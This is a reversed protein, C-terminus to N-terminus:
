DELSFVHLSVKIDDTPTTPSLNQLIYYMENDGMIAADNGRISILNTGITDLNAGILKPVFYTTESGSLLADIVLGTTGLSETAFSRSIETANSFATSKTYLRLRARKGSGSLSASVLLYTRPVTASALTGSVFSGTTVTAQIDPVTVRNIINISSDELLFRNFTIIPASAGNDIRYYTLKNSSTAVVSYVAPDITYTGAVSMSFDGILAINNAVGKNVFTRSIETANDRSELNDYLRLRCPTNTTLSLLIYASGLDVSGSGAASTQLNITQRDLVAGNRIHEALGM